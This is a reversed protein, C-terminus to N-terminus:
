SIPLERYRASNPDAGVFRAIDRLRYIRGGGGWNGDPVEQIICWVRLRNDANWDAGEAELVARTVEEVLGKKREDNLSGQPVTTIVRYRPSEPPTGGVTMAGAKVEHAYVWAISKAQPTDPAGEWKLLITTLQTMLEKKSEASLTGEPLTLDIMPMRCVRKRRQTRAERRYRM